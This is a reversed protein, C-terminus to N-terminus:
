VFIGLFFISPISVISPSKLRMLPGDGLGPTIWVCVQPFSLHTYHALVSLKLNPCNGWGQWEFEITFFSKFLNEMKHARVEDRVMEPKRCIVVFKEKFPLKTQGKRIFLFDPM